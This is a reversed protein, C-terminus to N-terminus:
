AEEGRWTQAPGPLARISKLLPAGFNDQLHQDADFRSTVVHRIRRMMSGGHAGRTRNFM